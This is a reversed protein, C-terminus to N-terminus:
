GVHRKFLFSSSRLYFNDLRTSARTPALAVDTLIYWHYTVGVVVTSIYPVPPTLPQIWM